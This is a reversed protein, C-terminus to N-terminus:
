GQSFMPVQIPLKSTICYIKEGGGYVMRIVGNTDIGINPQQGHIEAAKTAFPIILRFSFLNYAHANNNSFSLYVKKQCFQEFPSIFNRHFLM